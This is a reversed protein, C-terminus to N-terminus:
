LELVHYKRVEGEENKIVQLQFGARQVVRESKQNSVETYIELSQYGAKKAIKTIAILANTMLGSFHKSLWYGVEAKEKNASKIDIAGVLQNTEPHFIGFIFHTQNRWGEESYDLFGQAHEISYGEPHRDQFLTKYILDESCCSYVDKVLLDRTKGDSVLPALQFSQNTKFNQITTPPPNFM